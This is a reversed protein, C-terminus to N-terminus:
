ERLVADGKLGFNEAIQRVYEDKMAPTLRRFAGASLWTFAPRDDEMPTDSRESSTKLDTRAVTPM